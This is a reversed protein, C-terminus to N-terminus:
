WQPADKYAQPFAEIMNQPLDEIKVPALIFNETIKYVSGNIKALIKGDFVFYTGGSNRYIGNEM